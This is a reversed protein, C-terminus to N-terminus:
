RERVIVKILAEVVVTFSNKLIFRVLFSDPAPLTFPDDSRYECFLEWDRSRKNREKWCESSSNDKNEVTCYFKYAFKNKFYVGM